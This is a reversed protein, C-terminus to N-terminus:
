VGLRGRITQIIEEPSLSVDIHLGQTLEELTAFQSDLMQPKMFQDSREKLRAAILEHDGKLYVLKVCEDFLLYARYREKLAACALVANEDRALNGAILDHLM